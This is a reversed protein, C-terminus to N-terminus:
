LLIIKEKKNQDEIIKVNNKAPQKIFGLPYIKFKLSKGKKVKNKIEIIKIGKWADRSSYM